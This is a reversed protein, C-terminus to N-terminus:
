PSEQAPASPPLNVPPGPKQHDGGGKQLEPFDKDFDSRGVDPRAIPLNELSGPAPPHAGETDPKVIEPQILILLENEEKRTTTSKFFEGLVPIQSLLPIREVQRSVTNSYLGGIVLTEGDAMQLTSTARRVTLSPIVFGSIQIAAGYNLESVEPTVTMQIANDGVLAASVLLRVGYPKYEISVSANVGSTGNSGQAVPIPIEGGVLISGQSGDLVMLSPESLVRAKNETILANLQAALPLVRTLAGGGLFGGGNVGAQQGAIQGFLIPPSQLSYAAGTRSAGAVLSGWNVGLNKTSNRDIDIIKARVLIQRTPHSGLNIMDVVKLDPPLSQILRDLPDASLSEENGKLPADKLNMVAESDDAPPDPADTGSDAGKARKTKRPKRAHTPSASSNDPTSIHGAYQGILAITKDDIVQVKIGLTGLNETLLAAYTQALSPTPASDPTPLVAILNRVKPTYVGAIAAARQLAVVSTVTGELFLTDKVARVTVGPLGVATQVQAALPGLDPIDPIVTLRLQHKGKRDYVFLSTEGVGKANVLLRRSSLPVIDAIMPSGVAATTMHDFEYVESEGVHLTKPASAALPMKAPISNQAYLPTLPLLFVLLVCYSIRLPSM